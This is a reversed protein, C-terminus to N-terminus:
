NGIRQSQWLAKIAACDSVDLSDDVVGMEIVEAHGITTRSIDGTAENEYQYPVFPQARLVSGDLLTESQSGDYPANSTGLESPAHDTTLYQPGAM